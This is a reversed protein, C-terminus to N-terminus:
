EAPKGLDPAPGSGAKEDFGTKKITLALLAALVLLVCMSIFASRYSGGTVEVIYGILVPSIAGAIYGSTQIIGAGLGMAKRPLATSMRAFFASTAMMFFFMEVLFFGIVMPFSDSSVALYLFISAVIWSVFMQYKQTARSKDALIGGLVQGFLAGVSVVLTALGFQMLTGHLVDVVYVSLWSTVGFSVMASVFYVAYLQWVVPYKFIDAVKVKEASELAADDANIEALEEASIKKNKAPSDKVVLWFLGALLLGPVFLSYFVARWGFKGILAAAIIATMATGVMMSINTLSIARGREKKPFWVALAKYQAPIYSGEGLGFAFRIGVLAALSSALGTMFTFISWFIISIVGIVRSGFKDALLGGPIQMLAYAFSFAGLILGMSVPSLALDKEIVPMATSIVARDFMLLLGVLFMVVVLNYRKKWAFKKKM